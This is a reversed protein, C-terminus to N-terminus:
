VHNDIRFPTYKMLYNDNRVDIYNAYYILVLYFHVLPTVKATDYLIYKIAGALSATSQTLNTSKCM